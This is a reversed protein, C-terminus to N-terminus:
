GGSPSYVAIVNEYAGSCGSTDTRAPKGSFYLSLALAKLTENAAAPIMVWNNNNGGGHPPPCPSPNNPLGEFRMYVEGGAGVSIAIIRPPNYVAADIRASSALMLIWSLVIIVTKSIMAIQDGLVVIFGHGESLAEVGASGGVASRFQHLRSHSREGQCSIAGLPVSDGPIETLDDQVPKAQIEM